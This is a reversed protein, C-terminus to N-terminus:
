LDVVGIDDEAKLEASGQGLELEKELHGFDEESDMDGGVSQNTSSRSRGSKKKARKVRKAEKKRRKAAMRRQLTPSEIVPISINEEGDAVDGDRGPIAQYENSAVLDDEWNFVCWALGAGLLFTLTAFIALSQMAHLLNVNPIGGRYASGGGDDSNINHLLGAGRHVFTGVTGTEEMWLVAQQFLVLVMGLTLGKYAAFKAKGTAFAGEVAFM